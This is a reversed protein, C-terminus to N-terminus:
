DFAHILKEILTIMDKWDSLDIQQINEALELKRRFKEQLGNKNLIEGQYKNIRDKYGTWRIPTLTGDKQQLVDQGFFLEISCAL